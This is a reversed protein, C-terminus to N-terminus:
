KWPSIRRARRAEATKEGHHYHCLTMLNDPDLRLSDDDVREIIHDVVDGVKVVGM